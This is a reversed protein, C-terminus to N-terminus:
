SSIRYFKQATGGFVQAMDKAGVISMAADHWSAYTGNLDLVPWDSGWMVRSSGFCEIIHAAYPRLTEITWGPKAETALGSLKCFAPTTKAIKAIKAAWEDFRNERIVPKMCHDVVTRMNPYADFLKRFPDLHIPFGLADFTLDLDGSAAEVVTSAAFVLSLLLVISFRYQIAQRFKM